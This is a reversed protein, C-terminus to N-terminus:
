TEIFLVEILGGFDFQHGFLGDSVTLMQPFAQCPQGNDSQLSLCLHRSAAPIQRSIVPYPRSCPYRCMM